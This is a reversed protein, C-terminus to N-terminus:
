TLQKRYLDGGGQQLLPKMVDWPRQLKDFEEPELNDRPVLVGHIAFATSRARPDLPPGECGYHALSMDNVLPQLFDLAVEKFPITSGHEKLPHKAPLAERVQEITKQTSTTCDSNTM